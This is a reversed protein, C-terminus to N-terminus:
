MRWCMGTHWRGRLPGTRVFSDAAVFDSSRRMPPSISPSVRPSLGCDDSAMHDLWVREALVHRMMLTNISVLSIKLLHLSIMAMEQDESRNIAIACGTGYFICDNAGGTGEGAVGGAAAGCAVGLPCLRLGGAPRERM